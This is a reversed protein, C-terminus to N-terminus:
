RESRATLGRLGGFGAEVVTTVEHRALDRKLDNVVCEDLLLKMDRVLTLVVLM